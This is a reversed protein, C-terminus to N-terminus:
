DRTLLYAHTAVTPGFPHEARTQWLDPYLRKM